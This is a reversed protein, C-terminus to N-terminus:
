PFLKIMCKGMVQLRYGMAMRQTIQIAAPVRISYLQTMPEQFYNPTM